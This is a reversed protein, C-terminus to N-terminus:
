DSQAALPIAGVAAVVGGSRQPRACLRHRTARWAGVGLGAVLAIAAVAVLWSNPIALSVGLSSILVLRPFRGLAAASLFRPLPYGEFAALARAVWFPFVGTAAIATALFPWRGFVRTLLQVPKKDRTKRVSELQGAWRYVRYNVVEVVLIGFTGVLGVLLPSYFRGYLMLVPEHAAPLVPSYPGNTWITFLAFAAFAGCDGSLITAPIAAVAVLATIRLLLDWGRDGRRRTLEVVVRDRLSSGTDRM